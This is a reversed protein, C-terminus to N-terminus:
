DFRNLMVDGCQQRIETLSANSGDRRSLDITELRLPQFGLGLVASLPAYGCHISLKFNEARYQVETEAFAPNVARWELVKRRWEYAELRRSEHVLVTLAGAKRRESITLM